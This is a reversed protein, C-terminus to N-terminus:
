QFTTPEFGLRGTWWCSTRERLGGGSLSMDRFCDVKNSQIFAETVVPASGNVPERGFGRKGSQSLTQRDTQGDTQRDKLHDLQQDIQTEGERLTSLSDIVHGVKLLGTQGRERERKRARERGKRKGSGTLSRPLRVPDSGDTNTQVLRLLVGGGEKM